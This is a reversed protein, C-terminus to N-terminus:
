IFFSQLECTRATVNEPPTPMHIVTQKRRLYRLYDCTPIFLVASFSKKQIEWPLTTVDSLHPPCVQLIKMHFKRM